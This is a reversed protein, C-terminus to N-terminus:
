RRVAPGFGFRTLVVPLANAFAFRVTNMDHGSPAVFLLTNMGQRAAARQLIGGATGYRQDGRGVVWIAMTDRYRGHRNMVATPAVAAYRAASGGFYKAITLHGASPVLQSVIALGAGFENSNGAIFQSTCTAGQSFGMVAWDRRQPLVRLHALVWNRVDVTIYTASNGGAATDLCMPNSWPNGLQDPAVVIPALGRHTKAFADLVANLHAVVFLQDPSGPQGSLAVIVPLHPPNRTLAAPPLYVVADRAAFNSVTGPIPTSYLAGKTPMGAPPRWTALSPVTSQPRRPLATFTRHAYPNSVVISAITPYYGFDENFGIAATLVVIPIMLGGLARHWAGRQVIAVIALAMGGFAFAVWMRMIPTLAIGFDDRVDGFWWCALYGLGAGFATAGIAILRWLVTQNRAVLLLIGLLTVADLAGLFLSSTLRLQLM